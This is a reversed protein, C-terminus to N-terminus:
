CVNRARMEDEVKRINGTSTYLDAIDLPIKHGGLVVYPAGEPAATRFAELGAIGLTEILGSAGYPCAVRDMVLPHGLAITVAGDETRLVYAPWNKYHGVKTFDGPKLNASTADIDGFAAQMAALAEAREEQSPQQAINADSTM